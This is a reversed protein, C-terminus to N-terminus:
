RSAKWMARTNWHCRYSVRVTKIRFTSYQTRKGRTALPMCSWNRCNFHASFKLPAKPCQVVLLRGHLYAAVDASNRPELQLGGRSLRAATQLEFAFNRSASTNASEQVYSFPGKSLRVIRARVYADFQPASLGAHVSIIENAEYIANLARQLNEANQDWKGSEYNRLLQFVSDVYTGFRSERVAIGLSELWTAVNSLEAHLEAFTATQINRTVMALVGHVATALEWYGRGTRSLAVLGQVRNDPLRTTFLEFPKFIQAFTFTVIESSWSGGLFIRGAAMWSYIGAM